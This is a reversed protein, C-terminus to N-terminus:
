GGGPPQACIELGGRIPPYAVGWDHVPSDQAVWFGEWDFTGDYVTQGTTVDFVLIRWKGHRLFSGQIAIQSSDPSWLLGSGMEVGTMFRTAGSATDILYIGCDQDGERQCGYVALQQNDPSFSFDYPVIEPLSTVVNPLDYLDLWRIPAYGM